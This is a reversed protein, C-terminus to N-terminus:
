KQVHNSIPSQSSSRQNQYSPHLNCPSLPLPSLSGNTARRTNEIQTDEDISESEDSKNNRKYKSLIAVEAKLREIEADLKKNEDVYTERDRKMQNQLQEVQEILALETKKENETFKKAIEIKAIKMEDRCKEHLINNDTQTSVEMYLICPSDAEITGESKAEVMGDGMRIPTLHSEERVSQRRFIEASSFSTDDSWETQCEFDLTLPDPRLILSSSVHKLQQKMGQVHLAMNEAQQLVDNRSELTVELRESLQKILEDRQKITEYLLKVNNEVTHAENVIIENDNEM